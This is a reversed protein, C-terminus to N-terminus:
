NTFKGGGNIKSCQRRAHVLILSLDAVFMLAGSTPTLFFIIVGTQAPLELGNM